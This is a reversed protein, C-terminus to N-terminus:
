KLRMPIGKRSMVGSMPNKNGTIDHNAEPSPLPSFIAEIRFNKVFYKEAAAIGTANASARKPVSKAMAKKPSFNRSDPFMRAHDAGNM